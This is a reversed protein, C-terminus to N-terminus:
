ICAYKYVHMHHAPGTQGRAGRPPTPHVQQAPRFFYVSNCLRTLSLQDASYRKYRKSVHVAIYAASIYIIIIIIIIVIDKM